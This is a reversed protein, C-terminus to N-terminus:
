APDNLSASFLKYNATNEIGSIGSFKPRKLTECDFKPAPLGKYSPSHESSNISLAFFNQSGLVCLSYTISFKPDYM